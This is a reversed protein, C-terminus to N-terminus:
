KAKEKKNVLGSALVELADIYEEDLMFVTEIINKIKKNKVSNSDITINAFIDALKIDQESLHNEGPDGEGTELWHKDINFEKLLLKILTDGPTVRGSEINAIANRSVGLIKGFEEQTLKLDGRIKKIRANM